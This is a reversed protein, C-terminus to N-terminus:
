EESSAALQGIDFGVVPERMTSTDISGNAGIDALAVTADVGVTWGCPVTRQRRYRPEHAALM